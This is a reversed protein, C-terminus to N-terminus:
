NFKGLAIRSVKVQSHDLKICWFGLPENKDEICTERFTCNGSIDCGKFPEKCWFGLPENKDEICTEGFECNGSIDCGKFQENCQEPTLNLVKSCYFSNGETLLRRIGEHDLTDIGFEDSVELNSETILNVIPELEVKVPYPKFTFTRIVAEETPSNAKMITQIWKQLNEKPTSGRKVINISNDESAESNNSAASSSSSSSRTCEELKASLCDKAEKANSINCGKAASQSLCQERSRQMTVSDSKQTFVKQVSVSAGMEARRIFHTGFYATFLSYRHQQLSAAMVLTQNLYILGQIFESSFKTRELYSISVNHTICKAVATVVEGNNKIAEVAMSQNKSDERAAAYIAFAETTFGFGSSSAEEFSEGNQFSILSLSINAYDHLNQASKTTLHKDCSIKYSVNIFRKFYHFFANKSDMDSPLLKCINFRAHQTKPDGCAQDFITGIMHGPDSSSNYSNALFPNFGKLADSIDVTSGTENGPYTHCSQDTQNTQVDCNKLLLCGFTSLIVSM